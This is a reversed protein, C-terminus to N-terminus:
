SFSGFSALLYALKNYDFRGSIFFQAVVIKRCFIDVEVSVGNHDFTGSKLSKRLLEKEPLRHCPSCNTAGLGNHGFTGSRWKDGGISVPTERAHRPDKPDKRSRNCRGVVQM